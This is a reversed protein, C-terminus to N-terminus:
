RPDLDHFTFLKGTSKLHVLTRSMATTFSVSDYVLGHKACVKKIYVSAKRLKNRAMKPYLHHEIHLNLGGHFWDLWEPVEINLNSDVQKLYWSESHYDDLVSWPKCYHSLILQFHLVGELLCCIGYFMAVETWTPLLSLLFSIYTWHCVTALWEYWRYEVVYSEILITFRGFLSVFPIFTLHQMKVLYYQAAGRYLKLGFLKESQAWTSEWMQPDAFESHPEVGNTLAHHVRHEDQWWSASMGFICTGYVVGGVTDRWDRFVQTHMFDHTLFGCQQWCATLVVAAFCHVYTSECKAVLFFTLALLLLPITMKMAYWQFDTEFYGEKVFYRRLEDFDADAPHREKMEYTGVPKRNKLVDKSHGQANFVTTADKGVYHELVPGGPHRSIFSTIDYWNGDIGILKKAAPSDVTTMSDVDTSSTDSSTDDNARRKRISM